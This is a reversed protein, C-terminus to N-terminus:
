TTWYDNVIRVRTLPSRPILKALTKEKGIWPCKFWFLVFNAIPIKNIILYTPRIQNSTKFACRNQLPWTHVKYHVGFLLYAQFLNSYTSLNQLVTQLEIALIIPPPPPCMLCTHNGLLLSSLWKSLLWSICVFALNARPLWRVGLAYKM